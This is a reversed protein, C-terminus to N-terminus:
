VKGQVRKLAAEANEVGDQFGIAKALGKAEEFRKRAEKVNGDMEAFEGLNHTAVACGVDCEETRDPPTIKAAVAISKEAWLRANNILAPRSAAPTNSPPLQQALSISLNNMLVATHCSSPPSQALAQLFLPAALYHQNKEEYHHALAEFSGGMEEASLWDGEGEKVGEKERRRQEKLVTEVAWVLREEASEKELVFENAYLEGLKVSVGVTKGLIRTRRGENGKQGGFRDLWKLNDAKVIELIDIAKKYQQVREMLAAIQIKVGIIEDSFPDMGVEDAIRLAERYYKVANKPELSINTYYLAKRLQKAVPEPYKHFAGIIYNHYIYNSYMLTGAGFFIFFVAGSVSFPYAKFLEKSAKWFPRSSKHRRQCMQQSIYSQRMAEKRQQQLCQAAPRLASRFRPTFM